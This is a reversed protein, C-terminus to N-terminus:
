GGDIRRVQWSITVDRDATILTKDPLQPGLPAEAPDSHTPEASAAPVILSVVVAVLGIVVSPPTLFRCSLRRKM